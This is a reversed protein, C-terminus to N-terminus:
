LVEFSIKEGSAGGSNGRCEESSLQSRVPGAQGSETCLVKSYSLSMSLMASVKGGQACESGKGLIRVGPRALYRQPFGSVWAWMCELM